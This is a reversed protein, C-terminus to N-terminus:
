LDRLPRGRRSSITSHLTHLKLRFEIAVVNVDTKRSINDTERERRVQARIAGSIGEHLAIEYIGDSLGYPYLTYSEAKRTGSSGTM